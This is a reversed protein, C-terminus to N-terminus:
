KFHYPIWLSLTVEVSFFEATLRNLYSDGPIATESGHTYISLNAVEFDACSEVLTQTL